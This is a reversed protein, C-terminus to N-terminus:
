FPLDNADLANEVVESNDKIKTSQGQSKKYEADKLQQSETNLIYYTKTKLEIIKVDFEFQAKVYFKKNIGGAKTKREEYKEDGLKIRIAEKIEWLLSPPVRGDTGDFGAWLTNKYTGDEKKKLYQRAEFKFKDNIERLSINIYEANDGNVELEYSLIELKYKEIKTDTATEKEMNADLDYGM